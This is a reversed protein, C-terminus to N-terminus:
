EIERLDARDTDRSFVPPSGIPADVDVTTGGEYEDGTWVHFWTGPPLYVSRTTAGQEVVPAVLLSPGLLFQDSVTRSGADDPFELMLHRVMPVSSSAGDAAMVELEPALAEHVRAFRRFHETTEADGDWNWNLDSQNGEHTRMIPTFAGLETWRQFLEKTSPGGSFGAIDHTTFPVGSLGLSLMAPVVTPLGDHPSWDAEQDGVWYVMAVGQAGTWGSRGFVVWDGDPRLEDMVERSMRQWEVPFRNHFAFADTGDSLVSDVPLWEAFDAMWGDMGYQEVMARLYGRVYERADENTLDPHSSFGNPALHQYPQGKADHILLDDAIMEDWHELTPDIFPNAYTLFRFGRMHLEAIMGELDPYHEEDPLWRYEVGFGGDANPRVGTWDQVWLAGVPIEAAELADAEALITDRGGQAGIWPSWAWQPPVPPRGVEDGLQRVVDLPSEGHFVLMDVPAGDIVEFWAVDANSSCLDVEVRYDTQVLVGFGRADLFYPMPFYTTHEDGNTPLKPVEPDRGIGQESSWLSIEEGRHETGNYQEGLGYFTAEEDCRLPVAMSAADEVGEITMVIRTAQNAAHTSLTFRARPGGDGSVFEVHVEDGEAYAQDFNPVGLAEEGSRTFEWIGLGGIWETTFRRAVPGVGSATGFFRRGDARLTIGGEADVLVETGDALVFVQEDAGTSTGTEDAGTETGSTSAAVMTTGGTETATDSTASGDDGCGLALSAVVLAFSPLPTRRTPTM